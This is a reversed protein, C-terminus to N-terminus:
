IFHLFIFFITFIYTLSSKEIEFTFFDFVVDEKLSVRCECAQEVGHKGPLLLKHTDSSLLANNIQKCVFKYGNGKTGKWVKVLMQSAQERM